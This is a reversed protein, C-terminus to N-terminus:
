GTTASTSSAVQVAATALIDLAQLAQWADRVDIRAEAVAAYTDRGAEGINWTAVRELQAAATAVIDVARVMATRCPSTILAGASVRMILCIM